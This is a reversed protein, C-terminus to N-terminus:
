EDERECLGDVFDLLDDDLPVPRFEATAVNAIWQDRPFCLNKSKCWRCTKEGPAFWEGFATDAEFARQAAPRVVTEAWAYLDERSIAFEGVHDMRPQHIAVVVRDIEHFLDVEVLMGLGYLLAQPNGFTGLAFLQEDEAIAADVKVNAGYKFDDVYLTRADVCVSGADVTGFGDPVYHSFDVRREILLEDANRSRVADVFVQVSDVMESTCVFTRYANGPLRDAPGDVRPIWCDGTENDVEIDMDAYYSADCDRKLCRAAIEHAATGEAAYESGRDPLEAQMKMSAACVLWAASGSASLKAHKLDTM